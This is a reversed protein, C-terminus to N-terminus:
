REANYYYRDTVSFQQEIKEYYNINTRVYDRKQSYSGHYFCRKFGYVIINKLQKPTLSFNDCALSIENTVTTNSVLRNDTCLTVSLNHDLMKRLPHMAVTKIEPVTQLNSTLCVELTIRKEAIYNALSEIYAKKDSIDTDVIREESFLFLGHGIRDAHCKTIAQFISEPGFAEGAHVTKMMFNRHIFEYSDRHNDAPYGYEAGAIDFAVIQADTSDRLAIAAQALELSLLRITERQPSYHHMNFFQRYYESFHENCFRMACLIIGYDFPPEDPTLSGNIQKKARKLGKDVALVVDKLNQHQNIHLQPAYRIEIYRVGESFNDIALEYAIRELSEQTQMVSCTLGFGTLYEELSAYRDKFVVERLGDQTYSPLACGNQKALDILTPIRLSGDLHLHLDTKPIAKLFEPSFASM